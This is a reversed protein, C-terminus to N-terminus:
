KAFIEIPITTTTMSISKYKIRCPTSSSVDRDSASDSNISDRVAASVILNKKRGTIYLHGDVLKGLDGTYLWGDKLAEATAKPNNWYGLM